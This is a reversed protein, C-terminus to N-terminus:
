KDHLAKRALEPFQSMVSQNSMGNTVHSPRLCSHAIATEITAFADNGDFEIGDPAIGIILTQGNKQKRLFLVAGFLIEDM